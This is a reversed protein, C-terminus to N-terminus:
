LVASSPARIMLGANTLVDWFGAFDDFGTAIRIIAKVNPKTLHAAVSPKVGVFALQPTEYFQRVATQVPCLLLGDSLKGPASRSYGSCL